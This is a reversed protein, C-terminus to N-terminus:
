KKQKTTPDERYHDALRLAAQRVPDSLAPSTRLYELVGKHPM